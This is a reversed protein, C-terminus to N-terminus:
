NAKEFADLVRMEGNQVAINKISDKDEVHVIYVPQQNPLSVEEVLTIAYDYYVPKIVARVERPLKDEGYTQIGGIWSGKQTFFNRYDIGKNAFRKDRRQRSRKRKPVPM